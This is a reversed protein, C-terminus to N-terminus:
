LEILETEGTATNWVVLTSKGTLWGGLEGPNVVLTKERRIDVEHTHGYVVLDFLGSVAVAELNDPEHMLVIKKGDLSLTYPAVHIHGGFAAKLGLREGDNNGFVIHLPMQLKLLDRATFPAVLDGAHLVADLKQSNCYDVAKRIAHMNDHSDSLIGVRM